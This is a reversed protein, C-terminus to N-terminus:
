PCLLAPLLPIGKSFIGHGTRSRPFLVPGVEKEPEARHYYVAKINYTVPHTNFNKVLWSTPNSRTKSKM